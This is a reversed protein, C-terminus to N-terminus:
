LPSTPVEVEIRTGRNPASEVSFRGSMQEARERMIAFGYHGVNEPENDGFPLGRGNDRIDLRIAEERYELAVAVHTAEAYRSANWLAEQAIRFLHREIVTDSHRPTGILTFDVSVPQRVFAREGAERIMRPLTSQEVSPSRLEWVVERAEVIAVELFRKLRSIQGEFPKSAAGLSAALEDFHLSIGLLEQVVTDHIERSMRAREAFVLVFQQRLQRLRLQWAVWALFLALLLCVATFWWTEYFNPRISFNWAAFSTDPAPDSTLRGVEFRYSGSRLNAYFAERRVGADIWQTDVGVLRYRFREQMPSTLNPATFVVRLTSTGPLLSADPVLSVARDNAHVSEIRVVPSSQNNDMDRPSLVAIGRSTTLWLTGDDLRAAGPFAVRVPVGVIGDSADFLRYRLPSQPERAAREFDSVSLRLVGSSIGLWMSGELDETISFVGYGPLVDPEAVAEVTDGIIRGLGRIGGIWIAGNQAEYAATVISGIASGLTRLQVSGDPSQVAIVVGPYGIWVRDERDVLVFQAVGNPVGVPPVVPTLRGDAWLFAGRQRDCVWLRGRSDAAISIISPLREAIPLTEFRGNDRRRALGRDTALWLNGHIDTTLARVFGSPLGDQVGYRRRTPGAVEVLGDATAIWLQNDGGRETAWTFGIDTLSKAKRRTFRHLASETGVWVNGDRDEFLSRVVNSSLGEAVTILELGPAATDSYRTRWLGQGQTGVWMTGYRDHVIVAGSGFPVPDANGPGGVKSFGRRPDTTWIIGASDESFDLPRENHTNRFTLEGPARRYIGRNTSIWLNGARDEHADVASGAPIGSRLDLREWSSGAFRYVGARDGAWLVGQRDEFLFQVPGEGIGASRGYRELREEIIRVVGGEALGVWLSGDRASSLAFVVAEEGIDTWRTFRIGDFRVLGNETGLWLYGASDQAITWIRGPPLGQREDWSELSYDVTADVLDGAVVTHPLM